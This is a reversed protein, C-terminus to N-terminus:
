EVILNIVSSSREDSIKRKVQHVCFLGVRRGKKTNANSKIIYIKEQLNCM